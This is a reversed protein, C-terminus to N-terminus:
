EELEEQAERYRAIAEAMEIRLDNDSESRAKFGSCLFREILAEYEQAQECYCPDVRTM